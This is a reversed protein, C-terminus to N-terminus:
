LSISKYARIDTSFKRSNCVVWRYTYTSRFGSVRGNLGQLWRPSCLIVRSCANVFNALVNAWTWYPDRWSLDHQYPYQSEKRISPGCGVFKPDRLGARACLWPPNGSWDEIHPRYWNVGGSQRYVYIEYLICIRPIFQYLRHVSFIAEVALSSRRSVLRPLDSYYAGRQGGM